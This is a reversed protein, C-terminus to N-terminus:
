LHDRFARHSALARLWCHVCSMEFREGGFHKYSMQNNYRSLHMCEEGFLIGIHMILMWLDISVIHVRAATIAFLTGGISTM